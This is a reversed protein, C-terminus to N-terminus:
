DYNMYITRKQLYWEIGFVGDEGGVGSTKRGSHHGQMYGGIGRNIFITGVQLTDIAKQQKRYDNTYLYASLGEIRDNTLSLAEEFGSVKMIPLVPGFVEERVTAQNNKVNTLVTPEYWYGHEIYKGDPRKGGAFLEAGEAVNEKVLEDIRNLGPASLTPGM